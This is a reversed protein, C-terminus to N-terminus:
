CHSYMDIWKVQEEVKNRPLPWIYQTNEPSFWRKNGLKTVYRQGDNDPAEASKIVLRTGWCPDNDIIQPRHM